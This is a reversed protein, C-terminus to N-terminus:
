ALAEIAMAPVEVSAGKDRRLPPPMLWLSGCADDRDTAPGLHPYRSMGMEAALWTHAVCFLTEIGDVEAPTAQCM